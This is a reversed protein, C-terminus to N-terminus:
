NTQYENILQTKLISITNTSAEVAGELFGNNHKRYDASETGSWILKNDWADETISVINNAPHHTLPEQDLDTSTFPDNAWDKLYTGIPKSAADGFLRSLQAIALTRLEDERKKRHRAPVSVFGFLAHLEGNQSSADHIEQLPGLHSIVDGSLGQERWFPKDYLCVFKAHAAMWTAVNNLQEKRSKTFTPDFTITAVAVRPPLALVIYKSSIENHQQKSSFTTSLYNNDKRIQTATANDLVSNSPISNSLTAIIRQIGGQLRYSGAMSIGGVGRQISGQADEYLTDGASAQSFIKESLKLEHLLNEIYAQGPWFWSPGLDIAALESHYSTCNLNHSLIRGGLRNRAELLKFKIGLNHLKYATHLGSLGGGIILM